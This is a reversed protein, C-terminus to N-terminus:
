VRVGTSESFATRTHQGSTPKPSWIAVSAERKRSSPWQKRALSAHQKSRVLVRKWYRSRSSRGAAVPSHGHSGIQGGPTLERAVLAGSRAIASPGALAVALQRQAGNILGERSEEEVLFKDQIPGPNTVDCAGTFAVLAVLAVGMAFRKNMIKAKM